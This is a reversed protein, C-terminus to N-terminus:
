SLQAMWPVGGVILRHGVPLGTRGVVRALGGVVEKHDIELDGKVGERNGRLIRPEVVQGLMMGVGVLNQDVRLRALALTDFVALLNPHFRHRSFYFALRLEGFADMRLHHADRPYEAAPRFALRDGSALSDM